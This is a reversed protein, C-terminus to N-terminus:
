PRYACEPALNEVRILGSRERARAYAVVQGAGGQIHRAYAILHICQQVMRRNTKVIALRRPIRQDAWPYFSGDFGEPLHVPQLAPHYALVLFLQVQPHRTKAERVAQAALSDFSGHRGVYFCNVGFAAIHREVAEALLPAISPSTDRHGIFFCNHFPM